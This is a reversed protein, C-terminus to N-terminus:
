DLDRVQYKFHILLFFTSFSSPLRLQLLLDLKDVVLSETEVLAFLLM